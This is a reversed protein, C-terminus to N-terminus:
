KQDNYAYREIEDNGSSDCLHKSQAYYTHLLRMHTWMSMSMSMCAYWEIAWENVPM